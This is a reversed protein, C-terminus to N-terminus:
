STEIPVLRSVSCSSRRPLALALSREATTWRSTTTRSPRIASEWSSRRHGPRLGGLDPRRFASAGALASSSSRSSPSAAASLRACSTARRRATRGASSELGHRAPRVLGGHVDSARPRPARTSAPAPGNRRWASADDPLRLPRDRDASIGHIPKARTVGYLLFPLAVLFGTLPGAAGVDILVGEQPSDAGQHPDSRRFHRDSEPVAVPIFYPLTAALGYRRCM